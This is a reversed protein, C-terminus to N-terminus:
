QVVSIQRKVPKRLLKRTVTHGTHVSSKWYVVIPPSSSDVVMGDPSAGLYRFQQYPVIGCSRVAVPTGEVAKRREYERLAVPENQRGHQIAPVHDLCKKGFIAEFLSESYHVRNKICGFNSATVMHTHLELWEANGGQARTRRELAQAAQVDIM